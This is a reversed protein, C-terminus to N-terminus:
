GGLYMKRVREDGLLEHGTGEYKNRGLELVYARHAIELARAANQEVLVIALGQDKLAGIQEFVQDVLKPALGLSPEDLMLM